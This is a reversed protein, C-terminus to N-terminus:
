RLMSWKVIGPKIGLVTSYRKICGTTSVDICWCKLVKVRRRQRARAACGVAPVSALVPASVGGAHNCRVGEAVSQMLGLYGVLGGFM